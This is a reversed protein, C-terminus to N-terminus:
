GYLVKGTRKIGEIIKHLNGCFEPVEEGFLGEEFCSLHIEMSGPGVTMGHARLSNGLEHNFNGDLLEKWGPVVVCLDVDSDRNALGRAVSGFLIVRCIRSGFEYVMVRTARNALSWREQNERNM